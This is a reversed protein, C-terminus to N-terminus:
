SAYRLFAHSRMGAVLASPRGARSTMEAVVGFEEICSGVAINTPRLNAELIAAACEMVRRAVVEDFSLDAKQEKSAPRLPFREWM